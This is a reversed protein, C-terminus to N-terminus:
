LSARKPETGCLVRHHPFQVLLVNELLPILLPFGTIVGSTISCGLIFCRIFPQPQTISSSCGEQPM